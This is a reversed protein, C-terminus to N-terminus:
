LNKLKKINEYLKGDSFYTEPPEDTESVMYYPKSIKFSNFKEGTIFYKNRYDWEIINSDLLGVIIEITIYRSIWLHKVDLLKSVTDSSKEDDSEESEDSEEENSSSSTSFTEEKRISNKNRSPSSVPFKKRKVIKLDDKKDKSINSCNLKHSINYKVMSKKSMKAFFDESRSLQPIKHGEKEIYNKLKLLSNNRLNIINDINIIDNTRNQHYIDNKEASQDGNLIYNIFDHFHEHIKIASFIVENSDSFYKKYIKTYKENKVNNNMYYFKKDDELIKSYLNNLHRIVDFYKGFDDSTLNEFDDKKSLVDNELEFLKLEHKNINKITNTNKILIDLFKDKKNIIKLIHSYNGDIKNKEM